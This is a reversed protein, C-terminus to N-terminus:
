QEHTENSKLLNDFLTDNVYLFTGVSSKLIIFSAVLYACYMFINSLLDEFSNINEIIEYTYDIHMALLLDVTTDCNLTVYGVVVIKLIRGVFEIGIKQLGVSSHNRVAVFLIMPLFAIFVLLLYLDKLVRLTLHFKMGIVLYYGLYGVALFLTAVPALALLLGSGYKTLILTTLVVNSVTSNQSYNTDKFSNNVSLPVLLKSINKATKSTLKKAQGAVFGNSNSASNNFTNAIKIIWSMKILESSLDTFEKSQSNCKYNNKIMRSYKLCTKARYIPDILSKGLKSKVIEKANPIALKNLDILLDFPIIKGNHDDDHNKIKVNFIINSSHDSNDSFYPISVYQQKFNRSDFLLNTYDFYSSFVNNMSKVFPSLLGLGRYIESNARSTIQVAESCALYGSNACLSKTFSLLDNYLLETNQNGFPMVNRNNLANDSFVDAADYYSNSYQSELFNKSACMSSIKLYINFDLLGTGALNVDYIEECYENVPKPFLDKKNLINESDTFDSSKLNEFVETYNSVNKNIKEAHLFLAKIYDEVMKKEKVLLDIRLNEAYSNLIPNSQITITNSAGGLFFTVLYEGDKFTVNLNYNEGDSPKNQHLLYVKLVKLFDDEFEYPDALQISSIDVLHNQNSELEKELNEFTEGFVQFAFYQYFGLSVKYGADNEVEFRSEKAFSLLLLTLIIVKNRSDTKIKNTHLIQSLCEAVSFLLIFYVIYEIVSFVNSILNFYHTSVDNSLYSNPSIGTNNSAPMIVHLMETLVSNSASDPLVSTNAAAFSVNIIVFLLMSFFYLIGKEKLKLSSYIIEKTSDIEHLFIKKTLKENKMIFGKIIVSKDYNEYLEVSPSKSM